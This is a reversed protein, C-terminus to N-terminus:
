GQHSKLDNFPSGQPRRNKGLHRQRRRIDVDADVLDAEGADVEDAVDLELM